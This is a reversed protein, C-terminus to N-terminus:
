DVVPLIVIPISEGDLTAVFKVGAAPAFVVARFSRPTDERSCEVNPEEWTKFELHYLGEGAQESRVSLQACTAHVMVMGSLHHAGPDLVDRIVAIHSADIARANITSGAILFVGYAVATSVVGFWFLRRLIDAMAGTHGVRSRRRLYHTNFLSCTESPM